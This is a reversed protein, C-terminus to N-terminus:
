SAGPRINTWTLLRDRDRAWGPWWRAPPSPGVGEMLMLARTLSVGDSPNAVVGVAPQAPGQHPRKWSNGDGFKVFDIDHRMLEVELDFSHSAARFLVAM